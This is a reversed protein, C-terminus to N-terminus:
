EFSGIFGIIKKNNTEKKYHKIMELDVGNPILYAIKCYKERLGNSSVVVLDVINMMEKLYNEGL